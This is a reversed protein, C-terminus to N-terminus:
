TSRLKCIEVFLIRNLHIYMKTAIYYDTSFRHLIKSVNSVVNVIQDIKWATVRIFRIEYTFRTSFAPPNEIAARVM